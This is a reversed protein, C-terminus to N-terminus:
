AKRLRASGFPWDEARAVLGAKVPNQEVYAIAGALHREDRMYRDYYERQWFSGERHLLKNAARATYTKWSHMIQALAFGPLMEVVVHVHNPMICWALLRYHQGDFYCLADQILRAIREDRLYCAGHGADLYAELRKRREADLNVHQSPQADIQKLEEEIQKLAQMPLADHLRFTIFQILKPNDLHPLYDRSYWGKPEHQSSESAKPAPPSAPAGLNSHEKNSM